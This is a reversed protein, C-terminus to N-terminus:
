NYAKPTASDHTRSDWPTPTPPAILDAGGAVLQQTATDSDPAQFAVRVRDPIRRGVKVEDIFRPTHRTVSEKISIAPTRGMTM